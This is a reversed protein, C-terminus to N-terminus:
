VEQRCCGTRRPDQSLTGPAHGQYHSLSDTCGNAGHKLSGKAAVPNGPGRGQGGGDEGEERKMGCMFLPNLGQTM